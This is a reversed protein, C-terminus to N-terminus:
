IRMGEKSLGKKGWSEMENSISVLVGGKFFGVLRRELQSDGVKAELQVCLHNWAPNWVHSLVYLIPKTAKFKKREGINSRIADYKKVM